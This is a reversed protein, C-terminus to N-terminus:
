KEMMFLEGRLYDIREKAFQYGKSGPSVCKLYREYWELATKFDKKQEYCYAITSLASIFKPNHTYAEKYHRIADDWRNQRKYYGLGYQQHVKSLAQHDPELMELAKDLWPKVEKEFPRFGEAKVAAISIALNVDSSDIMWAKTLEEEARYIVKTQWCSQGLYFHVGYSDNGLEVQKELLEIAPVYEGKCYLAVGKVPAIVMNDPDLALLSDTVAVASDYDKRDLYIKAVKNVVPANLPKKKLALGYYVLASDRLEMQNFADGVLSAVAPITDRMLIGKGAAVAAPFERLRYFCVAQRVQYLLNGPFRQSLLLYTGSATEFDGNQFHCDALEAFIDEDLAEPRVLSSLLSIAEDTKYISKLARAERITEQRRALSDPVQAAAPVVVLLAAVITIFRKMQGFYQRM